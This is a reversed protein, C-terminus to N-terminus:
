CQPPELAKRQIWASILGSIRSALASSEESTLNDATFRYKALGQM